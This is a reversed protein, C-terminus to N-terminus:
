SVLERWVVKDREGSHQLQMSHVADEMQSRLRTLQGEREGRERDLEAELEDVRYHLHTNPLVGVDYCTSCTGLMYVHMIDHVHKSSDRSSVKQLFVILALLLWVICVCSTTLWFM